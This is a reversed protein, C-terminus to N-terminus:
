TNTTILQLKSLGTTRDYEIKDIWAQIYDSGNTITIKSNPLDKLNTIQDFSLPYEFQYRDIPFLSPDNSELNDSGNLYGTCEITSGGYIRISGGIARKFTTRVVMKYNQPIIVTITDTHSQIGGAPVIFANNTTSYLNGGSYGTEDYVDYLITFEGGAGSLANTLFTSTFYYLGGLPSTFEFTTTNWVDDADNNPLTTDDDFENPVKTDTSNLVSLLDYNSTISVLCLPSVSTLYNVIENPVYGLSRTLVNKNTLRENYYDLSTELWNSQVAQLTNLDVDVLFLGDNYSDDAATLCAEIINSSLIVNSTLDLNTDINCSSLMQYQENNFGNFAITEPFSYDTSDNVDSSGLTCTAYLKEKAYSKTIGKVNSLNVAVNSSYFYDKSELRFVKRNNSNTEIWWGLNFLRTVTQLIESFPRRINTFNIEANDQYFLEAGSTFCMGEFEGGSDLISSEFDITSDSMFDIYYRIADFVTYCYCTIGYAGSAPLFFDVAFRNVPTIDNGLKSKGVVVSTEISKNNNIKSYYGDDQLKTKCVCKDLEFECDSIFIIGTDTLTYDGNNTCDEYISYTVQSCYGDALSKEYLYTYSDGGFTVDSDSQVLLGSSENDRTISFALSDWNLPESVQINDFFFKYRAAM